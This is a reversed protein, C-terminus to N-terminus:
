TLSVVHEKKGGQIKARSHYRGTNEYWYGNWRRIGLVHNQDDCHSGSEVCSQCIDCDGNQCVNCHYKWGPYTTFCIHCLPPESNFYYNEPVRHNAIEPPLMGEVTHSSTSPPFMALLASAPLRDRPQPSRCIDIIRSFWTPVHKNVPPLKIQNLDPEAGPSAIKFCGAKMCERLTRGMCHSDVLNWLLSGLQYLDTRSTFEFRGDSSSKQEPAVDGDIMYGAAIISRKFVAFVVNGHQDMRQGQQEFLIGVVFGKAHIDRVATVIQRAWTLRTSLPISVKAVAACRLMSLLIRSPPLARLYSKVYSCTDDVVVGLLGVVYPSDKLCHLLQTEWFAERINYGCLCIKDEICMRGGPTASVFRNAHLFHHSVIENEYFIPCGLDRVYDLFQHTSHEQTLCQFHSFHPTTDVNKDGGEISCSLYSIDSLVLGSIKDELLREVPHPLWPVKILQSGSRPSQCMSWFTSTTKTTLTVILNRWKRPTEAYWFHYENVREVESCSKEITYFAQLSRIKPCITYKEPIFNSSSEFPTIPEVPLSQTQGRTQQGDNADSTIYAQSESCEV